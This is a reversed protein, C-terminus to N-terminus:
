ALAATLSLRRGGKRILISLCPGWFMRVSGAWWICPASCWFMVRSLRSATECTGPDDPDRAGNRAQLRSAIAYIYAFNGVILTGTLIFVRRKHHSMGVLWPVASLFSAVTAGLRGTVPLVAAYRAFYLAIFLQIRRWWDADACEFVNIAYRTRGRNM